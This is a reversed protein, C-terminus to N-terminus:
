NIACEGFRWLACRGGVVCSFVDLSLPALVMIYVVFARRDFLSCYASVVLPYLCLWFDRRRLFVVRGSRDPSSFRRCVARAVSQQPPLTNWICRCGGLMGSAGVVAHPPAIEHQGVSVLPGEIVESRTSPPHNTRDRLRALPSLGMGGEIRVYAQPRWFREISDFM